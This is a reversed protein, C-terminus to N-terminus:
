KCEAAVETVADNSDQAIRYPVTCTNEGREGWSAKLVGTGALGSLYVLGDDAVMGESVNKGASVTAGFPVPRGAHTLTFLARSGHHARFSALVLAGRTPVTKQVPDDIDDQSSLRSVDLAVRANRYNTAYPVLTYGRWDTRIGEANEVPAGAVGPAAVLINTTGLPQGFTLGHQHVVASGSAGYRYQTYNRSYGYGASLDGYTGKYEASADGTYGNDGATGQSVAWQLNHEDLATGSLGAQQSSNGQGNHNYAYTAWVTNEQEHHSFVSLPVSLNLYFANDQRGNLGAVTRSYGVSYSVNHAVSNFSFQLSSASARNGWYSQHTGTMDISSYEGLRQSINVQFEQRRTGYLSFYDSWSRRVPRGSADVQQDGNHWGQMERLASESFTYFGSTSYRYGALQLTTGSSLLSRGYLFRLSDGTHHSGDALISRAHTVDASLAGALGMNVGTGATLSSYRQAILLGGYLTRENQLGRLLTGEIFGPQGYDSGTGSFRGASLAYRMHGQRQLVPISSYPVYFARERGDSERVSVRLDGGNGVPYLDTLTFSGAPVSTRYIVHNNQYVSVEAHSYAYGKIVPAYGRETDSYMSDDSSLQVGRFSFGDLVDGATTREGVSLESKLPVVTREAYTSINQWHHVSGYRNDSYTWVGNNRLRWPGYNAGSTLNLYDSKSNSYKGASSNGSFQWSFLLASIGEDWYEPDVWGDRSVKKMYTQPISMDLKMKQFNFRSFAQPIVDSIVICTEGGALKDKLPPLSVGLSSLQPLSFCPVLGTIDGTNADKKSGDSVFRIQASGIHNGNAYIEVPYSGPLQGGNNEFRSLDAPSEAGAGSIMSPDFYLGSSFAATSYGTCILLIFAYSARLNM